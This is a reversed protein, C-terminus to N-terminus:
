PLPDYPHLSYSNGIPVTSMVEIEACSLSGVNVLSHSLSYIRLPVMLVSYAIRHWYVNFGICYLVKKPQM